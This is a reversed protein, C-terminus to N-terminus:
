YHTTGVKALMDTLSTWMMDELKPDQGLKTGFRSIYKSSIISLVSLFDLMSCGPQSGQTIM